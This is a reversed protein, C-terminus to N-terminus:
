KGGSVRPRARIAFEKVWALRHPDKKLLHDILAQDPKKRLIRKIEADQERPEAGRKGAEEFWRDGEGYRGTQYCLAGMLTYPNPSNPFHKIAELACNEAEALQNIDRLAGGRTTLLAARLKPPKIQKSDLDNTLKLASEPKEAKRWHASATALNWRNNTRQFENEYFQSELTHHAIYIATSRRLLGEGELWVVDDDVLRSGAELKRLISYLPSEPTDERNQHEVEYHRNLWLFVIEVFDHEECWAVDDPRLGQDQEIKRILCDANKQYAFKVTQHLKRKKLYNIDPESLALGAELKKLVNYLHQTTGGEQIQRVLYKEKLASLEIEKVIELTEVFRNERLYRAETEDPLRKEELKQLIHCLVLPNCTAGGQVTARYKTRLRSFQNQIPNLFSYANHTCLWEIDTACLSTRNELKSLINEASDDFPIEETIGHKQKRDNFDNFDLFRHYSSRVFRLETDALRERANVKYFVLATESDITPIATKPFYVFRDNKLQLLEEGVEKRLSDRYSEQNKIIDKTEMLQHQDLWRWESATLHYGLEAKRLIFSLPNLAAKEAYHGAKYKEYLDTIV